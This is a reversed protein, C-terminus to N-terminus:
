QVFHSCFHRLHLNILKEMTKLSIPRYSKPQEPDNNGAKHIYVVKIKWWAKVLYGKKDKVRTIKTIM